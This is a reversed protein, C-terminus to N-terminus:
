ARPSEEFWPPTDGRAANWVENLMWLMRERVVGEFVSRDGTLSAWALDNLPIPFRAMAAAALRNM